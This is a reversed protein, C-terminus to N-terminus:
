SAGEDALRQAVPLWGLCDVGRRASSLVVIYGHADSAAHYRRVGAERADIPCVGGLRPNIVQDVAIFGARRHAPYERMAVQDLSALPLPSPPRRVLLGSAQAESGDPSRVSFAWIQRGLAVLRVQTGNAYSLTHRCLDDPGDMQGHQGDQDTVTRASVDLAHLM